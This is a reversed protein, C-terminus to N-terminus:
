KLVRKSNKEKSYDFDRIIDKITTLYEKSVVLKLSNNGKDSTYSQVKLYSSKVHNEHRVKKILEINNFYVNSFLNRMFINLKDESDFPYVRNKKGCLIVRGEDILIKDSM